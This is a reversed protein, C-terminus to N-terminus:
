KMAGLRQVLREHVNSDNEALQMISNYEDVSLGKDTIAKKLAANAESMIENKQDDPPSASLKQQYDAMVRQVNKIAAAAQDLKQDSIKPTPPQAQASAPQASYIMWGTCLVAAAVSIISRRM